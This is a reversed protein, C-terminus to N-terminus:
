KQESIKELSNVDLETTVNDRIGINIVGPKSSMFHQSGMTQKFENHMESSRDGTKENKRYQPTPSSPEKNM